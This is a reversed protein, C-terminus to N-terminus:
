GDRCFRDIYAEYTRRRHRLKDGRSPKYGRRLERNVDALKRRKEWCRDAQRSGAASQRSAKRGGVAPRPSSAAKPQEVPPVWGTRRDEISVANEVVDPTCPQQRFEIRGEADECSYVTTGAPARISSVALVAFLLFSHMSHALRGRSHASSNKKLM